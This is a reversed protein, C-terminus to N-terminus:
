SANRLADTADALANNLTDIEHEQDAALKLAEDREITRAQESNRLDDIWGGPSNQIVWDNASENWGDREATLAEVQGALSRLAENSEQWRPLVSNAIERAQTPTTPITM